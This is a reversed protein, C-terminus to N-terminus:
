EGALDLSYRYPRGGEPALLDQKKIMVPQRARIVLQTGQVTGDDIHDARYGYLLHGDPFARELDSADWYTGPMFITIHRGDDHRRVVPDLSTSLDLVLRIMGPHQGVRVSTVHPVDAGGSSLAPAPQSTGSAAIEHDIKAIRGSYADEEIAAKEGAAPELLTLDIGYAFLEESSVTVTEPPVNVHYSPDARVIYDGPRVFEFAYYGDYATATQMIIRGDADVLHLTMGSVPAGTSDRFVTGDVAGTEVVPLDIYPMTGRVGAINYGDAAPVFYPDILSSEDIMVDSYQDAQLGAVIFGDDDSRSQSRARGTMLRVGELPEDGEGFVGDGDHDIFVRALVPAMHRQHKGSLGYAGDPNYPHLSTSARVTLTVGSREQYRADFSTLLKEFEYGIQGGVGFLQDNFNYNGSVAAQFSDVRRYRLEAQATNIDIDPHLSYNVSGRLQWPRRSWSTTFTGATRQHVNDILQTNTANNFRLGRGSFSQATTINTTSDSNFFERHLARFRLGLPMAGLRFNTSAQIDTERSKGADGFGSESSEFDRTYFAQRMNLRIGKVDTLFSVDAAQGGSIQHYARAEGLGFPTSFAVGGTVYDFDDDDTARFRTRTYGGFMTLSRNLGYAVESNLVLGRPNRSFDRDRLPIFDRGQQLAGVRYSFDGPALMASSINYDQVDERIQGQPGYLITRIRNNGFNLMVEEFRYVGDAGVEGVRILESNNYLEIEWGAPGTGEVTILDFERGRASDQNSLVLGRGGSASGIRSALSMSVDGFEVRRLYPVFLYDDGAAQRMLKLRLADPRNFRNNDYSLSTGYEAVMKGIQQTGTMNQSVRFDQTQTNYGASTQLDLVPKGLWLHPNDLRPLDLTQSDRYDRRAMIRAQAEQRKLAREFPLDEDAEVLVTIAALDIRMTVPWIQNLIDVAVYLDDDIAYDPDLLADRPLSREEGKIVLIGSEGDITFSNEERAAFGQVYQRGTEAETYFRFSEALELLPLYYTGDHYYAIMADTIQWRPPMTVQFIWEEAQTEAYAPKFPVPTLAWAMLGM